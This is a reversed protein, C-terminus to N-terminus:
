QESFLSEAYQSLMAFNNTFILLGIVVLLIGSMVKIVKLYPAIKKFTSLFSNVALASLFFPIGLGLSYAFLLAMGRLMNDATTAYMLIAALIPGICPTWGVAFGIGVLVSGAYGIPRDKVHFRKERQLFDFNFLGTFHIGLIMVISGGIRQAIGIHQNIINGIYTASAGLSVFVLSFGLIFLLSHIATAKKVRSSEQNRTIDEFSMGTIFTVYSPLLPLVCPSVFSAVGATFALFLSMNATTDM